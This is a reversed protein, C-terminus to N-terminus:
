ARPPHFISIPAGSPPAAAPAVALDFASDSPALVVTFRAAAVPARGLSVCCQECKGPCGTPQHRGPQGAPKPAPATKDSATKKCCPHVAPPASDAQHKTCAILNGALDRVCAGCTAGRAPGSGFAGVGVAAILMAAVLDRGLTNRTSQRSM